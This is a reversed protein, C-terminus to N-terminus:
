RTIKFINGNDFINTQNDFTTKILIRYFREVPLGTTDLKFYHINGDSSLKTNDDFDILINESENDKICYYSTSPLLSSSLYSNQQYGKTFNKLPYKERAFVNIRPITGFKYEKSLNQIVTTFPIIGNLPVMSGTIYVSDDWSIDIYPQYITNTEKSFFKVTSNIGNATSSELSSILIIGENPICGCIWGKVINTIDMNIDSTTYEYSQSCILSSGSFSSTCFSSSKYQYTLPVANYWTGGQNVSASTYTEITSGSVYWSSGSEIKNDWSAGVSDGNTSFRGIGMAWSQSIPYAYVTYDVPLESSEAAKLKLKFTANSSISGNSISKSIETIDFKVLVRSCEPKNVYTFYPSYLSQTGYIFGSICGYFKNISGSTSSLSGTINGILSGTVVLSGSFSGSFGNLSGSVNSLTISEQGSSGYTVGNLISSSYTSNLVVGSLSGTIIAGDILSGTFSISSNDTFKLEVYGYSDISTSSGSINGSFNQVNFNNYFSQSVSSSQYYVTTRTVNPHGKLELIEDIGFNKNAYGVENTIYTDKQPYLFTHM